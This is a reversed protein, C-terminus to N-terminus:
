QEGTQELVAGKKEDQLYPNVVYTHLAGVGVACALLLLVVVVKGKRSFMDLLGGVTQFFLGVAAASALIPIANTALPEYARGGWWGVGIEVVQAVLPLPALLMRLRRPYSTFCFIFGTLGYLMAFGLLHVHSTQALKRLSMGAGATEVESYTHVDEYTELPAQAAPGTKSESHCRVCRDKVITQIQVSKAGNEENVFKETIPQSMLNAPLPYADDEYAKEPLQNHIWDVLVLVEGDREARLLKEAQLLDARNKPDLKHKKAERKIANQWGTSRITFASRMSGSGNFPLKENSLLIRELQSVVQKPGHYIAGSEKAGPLLQGPSAAQFHLQVLASFYGVGVSVLFAAIVLRRDLSLDRLVFRRSPDNM